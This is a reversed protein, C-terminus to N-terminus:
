EDNRLYYKNLLFCFNMRFFTPFWRIVTTLFHFFIRISVFCSKLFVKCSKVISKRSIKVSSKVNTQM